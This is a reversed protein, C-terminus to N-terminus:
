QILKGDANLTIETWGKPLTPSKPWNRFFEGTKWNIATDKSKSELRRGTRRLLTNPESIILANDAPPVVTPLPLASTLTLGFTLFIFLKM